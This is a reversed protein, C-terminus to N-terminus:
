TDPCQRGWDDLLKWAVATMLGLMYQYESSRWTGNVRARWYNDRTKWVLIDWSM